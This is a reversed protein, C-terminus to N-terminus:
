ICFEQFTILYLIGSFNNAVFEQFNILDLTEQFNNSVFEQINILYLTEEKDVNERNFKFSLFFCLKGYLHCSEVPKLDDKTKIPMGTDEEITNPVHITLLLYYITFLSYNITFLILLNLTIIWLSVYELKKDM